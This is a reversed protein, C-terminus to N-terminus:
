EAGGHRRLVEGVEKNVAVALPTRQENDKMNADAGNSLLLEAVQSSGMLAAWHLPTRGVKDKAGADSNQALLLDAVGFHDDKSVVVRSNGRIVAAVTETDGNEAADFIEGGAAAWSQAVDERCAHKPADLLRRRGSASIQYVVAKQSSGRLYIDFGSMPTGKEDHYGVFCACPVRSRIVVNSGSFTFEEGYKACIQIGEDAEARKFIWSGRSIPSPESVISRGDIGDTILVEGPAPLETYKVSLLRRAAARAEGVFRGEDHSRLYAVYSDATNTKQAELWDRKDAGANEFAASLRSLSWTHVRHAYFWVGASGLIILTVVIGRVTRSQSTTM